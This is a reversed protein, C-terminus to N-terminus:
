LREGAFTTQKCGIAKARLATCTKIADAANKFPGAILKFPRGHVTSKHVYRGEMKAFQGAYLNKMDAWHARVEDLSRGSGLYLGFLTQTAEEQRSISLPEEQDADDAYGSAPMAGYRIKVPPTRLQSGNADDDEGPLIVVDRSVISGTIEVGDAPAKKRISATTLTMNQELQSLKRTLLVKSEEMQGIRKDLRIVERRIDAIDAKISHDPQTEETAARGFQIPKIPTRTPLAFEDQTSLSPSNVDSLRETSKKQTDSHRLLLFSSLYVAAVLALAIWGLYYLQSIRNLSSKSNARM